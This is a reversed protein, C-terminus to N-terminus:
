AVRLGGGGSSGRQELLEMYYQLREGRSPTLGLPLVESFLEAANATYNADKDEAYDLVDGRGVRRDTWTVDRSVLLVLEDAYPAVSLALRKLFESVRCESEFVKMQELLPRAVATNLGVSGEGIWAGDIEVAHYDVLDVWGWAIMRDMAVRLEPYYPAGAKLIKGDLPDVDWLAGLLNALYAYSHLGRFSIPAFGAIEISDLMQLLRIAIRNPARGFAEAEANHM